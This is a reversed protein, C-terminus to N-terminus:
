DASIQKYFYSHTSIKCYLAASVAQKKESFASIWSSDVKSLVKNFNFGTAWYNTELLKKEARDSNGQIHFNHKIIEVL